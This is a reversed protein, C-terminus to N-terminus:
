DAYNVNVTLSALSVYRYQEPLTSGGDSITVTLDSQRDQLAPINDELLNYIKKYQVKNDGRRAFPSTSGYEALILDKIAQAVASFDYVPSVFANVTVPIQVVVAPVFTIRYSNDADTIIKRAKEETEDQTWGDKQISVFLRNINDIDAGRVEEERQENWVSLFKVPNMNRRILYDFNGRYVASEDYISPYSAVERITNIDMPDAGAILVEILTMKLQSEAPNSVYEISFQSAAALDFAGESEVVTVAFIEGAAPQHGAINSAGFKIFLRRQEDTQLHYMKQGIEVNVFDPIHEFVTTGQKVEVSVLKRGGEPQPVQIVYFPESVTVTHNFQNLSKQVATITGTGPSSSTGGPVIAGAEVMYSRGQADLLTKGASITVPVATPNQVSISVKKSTGFPLIGKIAADALVTVDRAKVFPESAAIDQEVSLMSLMTAMSELQALVTPDKAQYQQAVTPYNSIVAAVQQMIQDKTIM